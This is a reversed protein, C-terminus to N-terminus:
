VSKQSDKAPKSEKAPKTEKAATESKKDSATKSATSTESEKAKKYNETRYDTQYFGSGKFIVGAGSGILRKLSMRGCEPCKKLPKATISQFQEFRNGCKQCEYEYTPM